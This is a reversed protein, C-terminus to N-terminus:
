HKCLKQCMTRNLGSSLNPICYGNICGWYINKCIKGCDELTGGTNNVECKNNICVYRKDVPPPTPPNIPNCAYKSTMNFQFVMPRVEGKVSFVPDDANPDCIVSLITQRGELGGSFTIHFVQPNHTINIEWSQQSVAGIPFCSSGNISARGAANGNELGSSFTCYAMSGPSSPLGGGTMQFYYVFKNNSDPASFYSNGDSPQIMSFDYETGNCLCKANNTDPSNCQQTILLALSFNLFLLNILLTKFM